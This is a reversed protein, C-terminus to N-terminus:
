SYHQNEIYYKKRVQDLLGLYSMAADQNVGECVTFKKEKAIEEEEAEEAEGAEGVEGVTLMAPYGWRAWAVLKGTAVETVKLTRIGPRSLLEAYVDTLWADKAADAVADGPCKPFCVRQIPMPLFTTNYVRIMDFIDAKTASSVEFPSM